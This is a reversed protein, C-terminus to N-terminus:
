WLTEGRDDPAEGLVRDPYLQRQYVPLASRAKLTDAAASYSGAPAHM